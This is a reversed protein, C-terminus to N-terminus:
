VFLLGASLKAEAGKIPPTISEERYMHNIKYKELRKSKCPQLYQFCKQAKLLLILGLESYCARKELELPSCFLLSHSHFWFRGSTATSLWRAALSNGGAGAKCCIYNPSKAGNNLSIYEEATITPLLDMRQMTGAWTWGGSLHSFCLSDWLAFAVYIWGSDRGLFYPVSKEGLSYVRMKVTMKYVEKGQTKAWFIWPTQILCSWWAPHSGGSIPWQPRASSPQHLSCCM